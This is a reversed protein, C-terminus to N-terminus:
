PAQLFNISVDGSLTASNVVFLIFSTLCKSKVKFTQILERGPCDRNGEDPFVAMPLAPEPEREKLPVDWSFAVKQSDGSPCLKKPPSLPVAQQENHSAVAGQTQM